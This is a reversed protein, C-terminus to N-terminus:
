NKVLSEWLKRTTKTKFNSIFNIKIRQKRAGVVVLVVVVLVVVVLVVVVLVVVVVVTEVVLAEVDLGVVGLSGLDTKFPEALM